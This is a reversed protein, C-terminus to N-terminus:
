GRGEGKEAPVYRRFFQFMRLGQEGSIVGACSWLFRLPIFKKRMEDLRAAPCHPILPKYVNELDRNTLVPVALGFSYIRGGSSLQWAFRDTQRGDGPTAVDVEFSLSRSVERARRASLTKAAVRRIFEREACLAVNLMPNDLVTQTHENAGNLVVIEPSHSEFVYRSRGNWHICVDVLNGRALRLVSTEIAGMFDVATFEADVDAVTGGEQVRHVVSDRLAAGGAGVGCWGPSAVPLAVLAGM